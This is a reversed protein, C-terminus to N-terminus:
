WVCSLTLDTASASILFAPGSHRFRAQRENAVWSPSGYPPSITATVEGGTQRPFVGLGCWNFFIRIESWGTQLEPKEILEHM